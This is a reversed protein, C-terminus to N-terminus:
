MKNGQMAFLSNGLMFELRKLLTIVVTKENMYPSCLYSSPKVVRKKLNPSDPSGKSFRTVMGEPTQPCEKNAAQPYDDEPQGQISFLM